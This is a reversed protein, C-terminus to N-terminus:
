HLLKLYKSLLPLACTTRPASMPRDPPGDSARHLFCKRRSAGLAAPAGPAAPPLVASLFDTCSRVAPHREAPPQNAALEGGEAEGVGAQCLSRRPRCSRSSPTTTGTTRGSVAAAGWVPWSGSRGDGATSGTGTAPRAGGGPSGPTGLSAAAASVSCPGDSRSTPPGVAATTARTWRQVTSFTSGRRAVVCVSRDRRCAGYRGVQHELRGCM